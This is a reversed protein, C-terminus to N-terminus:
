YCSELTPPHLPNKESDKLHVECELLKWSSHTGPTNCRSKALRQGVIRYCSESTCRISSSTEQACEDVSIISEFYGNVVRPPCCYTSVISCLTMIVSAQLVASDSRGSNSSGLAQEIIEVPGLHVSKPFTHICPEHDVSGIKLLCLKREQM